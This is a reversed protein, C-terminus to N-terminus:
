WRAPGSIPLGPRGPQQERNVIGMLTHWVSSVWMMAVTVAKARVAVNARGTSGRNRGPRRNRELARRCHAQVRAAHPEDVTVVPLTAVARWLGDDRWKGSM